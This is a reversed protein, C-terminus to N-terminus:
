GLPDEHPRETDSGEPAGEDGGERHLVPGRDRSPDGWQEGAGPSHRRLLEAPVLHIVPAPSADHDDDKGILDIYHSIKKEIIDRLGADKPDRLSERAALLANLETYLEYRSESPDKPATAKNAKEKKQDEFWGALMTLMDRQLTAADNPREPPLMGVGNLPMPFQPHLIAYDRQDDLYGAVDGGGQAIYQGEAGLLAGREEDRLRKAERSTTVLEVSLKQGMVCLRAARGFRAPDDGTLLAEVAGSMARLVDRLKDEIAPVSPPSPLTEENM